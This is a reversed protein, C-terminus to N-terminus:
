QKIRELVEDPTPEDGLIWWKKGVKEKANGYLTDFSIFDKDGGEYAVVCEEGDYDVKIITGNPQKREDYRARVWIHEGRRPNRERM